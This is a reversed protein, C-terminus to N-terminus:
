ISEGLYKIPDDSIVMQQLHYQWEYDIEHSEGCTFDEYSCKCYHTGEDFLAKAFDHNFIPYYYEYSMVPQHLETTPDTGTWGNTKAKQIVKELVEKDSM